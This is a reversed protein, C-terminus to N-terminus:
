LSGHPGRDVTLLDGKGNLGNNASSNGIAVVLCLDFKAGNGNKVLLTSSLETEDNRQRDM